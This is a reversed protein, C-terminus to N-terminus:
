LKKRFSVRESLGEEDFNSGGIVHKGPLVRGLARLDAQKSPNDRFGGVTGFGALCELVEGVPALAALQSNRPLRVRKEVGVRKPYKRGIRLYLRGPPVNQRNQPGKRAVRKVGLSGGPLERRPKVRPSLKEVM